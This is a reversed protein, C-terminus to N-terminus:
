KQYCNTRKLFDPFDNRLVECCYKKMTKLIMFVAIKTKRHYMKTERFHVIEEISELM